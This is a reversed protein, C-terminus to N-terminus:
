KSVVTNSAKKYGFDSRNAKNSIKKNLDVKKTVLDLKTPPKIM